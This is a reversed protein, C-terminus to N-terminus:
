SCAQKIAQSVHAGVTIEHLAFSSASLLEPASISRDSVVEILFWSENKRV